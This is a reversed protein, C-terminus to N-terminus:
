PNASSVTAAMPSSITLARCGRTRGRAEREEAGGAVDLHPSRAAAPPYARKVGERGFVPKSTRRIQAGHARLAVAREDINPWGPQEKCADILLRMHNCGHLRERDVKKEGVLVTCPVTQTYIYQIVIYQLFITWRCYHAAHLYFLPCVSSAVCLLM